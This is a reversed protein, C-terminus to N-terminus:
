GQLRAKVASIVSDWDGFTAQRFVSASPYWLMREGRLGYRWEPLFPAMVLVEKGIAGALHVTTNCVSVVLDLVQMLGALEDMDETVGPFFHLPIGHAKRFTEIEAACDGYQLSIWAIGPIELLSHLRALDFSRRARGTKAVGGRWSLGIKRGPGLAALRERWQVEKRPDPALYSRRAPFDAANTRFHMGLSGAAVVCSVDADPPTQAERAAGIVRIAPFSRAFLTALRPECLLTIQEVLRSLDSIMSVHMIEDGLGQEGYVLLRGATVPGGQWTPISAFRSHNDRHDSIRKRAEYKPWAASFKGDLFDLVSESLAARADEGRAQAKAFWHRAAPIDGLCQLVLTGMNICMGAGDFAQMSLARYHERAEDLRGLDKLILALNMRYNLQSPLLRLSAEGHGVAEELRGQGWLAAALNAHGVASDPDLEIARRAAQEALEERWPHYIASIAAHVDASGPELKLAREAAALADEAKGADALLQAHAVHYEAREPNSRLAARISEMAGDANGQQQRTAAARYLEDADQKAAPTADAAPKLEVRWRLFGPLFARLKLLLARQFARRGDQLRGQARLAAGLNAHAIGHEPKLDIARRFSAEAEAHWNKEFYAAGLDNHVEALTDDVRLARRYATIARDTKGDEILANGLDHQYRAVGRELSAAKSLSHIADGLMALNQQALGLQHWAAASRPNTNVARQADDLQPDRDAAPM